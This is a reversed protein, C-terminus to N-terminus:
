RYFNTPVIMGSMGVPNRANLMTGYGGKMGVTGLLDGAHDVATHATRTLVDSVRDVGFHGAKRLADSLFGMRVNSRRGAMSLTGSDQSVEMSDRGHSVRSLVNTAFLRTFEGWEENTCSPGRGERRISAAAGTSLGEVAGSFSVNINQGEGVDEWLAVRWGAYQRKAYVDLFEFNYNILEGSTAHTTIAGIEYGAELLTADMGFFQQGTSLTDGSSAIAGTAVVTQLSVDPVVNPDSNARVWVITTTVVATGVTMNTFTANFRIGTRPPVHFGGVNLTSPLGTITGAVSLVLSQHGPAVTSAAIRANRGTEVSLLSDIPEIDDVTEPGLWAYSPDSIRRGIFQNSSDLAITALENQTWQKIDRFDAIAFMGIEGSLSATTTSQTNAQVRIKSAALRGVSLTSSLVPSIPIIGHRLFKESVLFTVNIPVPFSPINFTPSPAGSNVPLFIDVNNYGSRLNAVLAGSSYNCDPGSGLTVKFTKHGLVGQLIMPLAGPIPIAGDYVDPNEVQRKIEKITDVSM